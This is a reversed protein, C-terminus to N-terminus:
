LVNELWIKKDIGKVFVIEHKVVNKIFDPLQEYHLFDKHNTSWDLGHCNYLLWKMHKQVTINNQKAQDVNQKAQDVPTKKIQNTQNRNVKQHERKLIYNKEDISKLIFREIDIIEYSGDPITITHNDIYFKINTSDVNPISYYALTDPKHRLVQKRILKTAHVFDMQKAKQKCKNKRNKKIFRETSPQRKRPKQNKRRVMKIYVSSAYRVPLIIPENVDLKKKKKNEFDYEKINLLKSKAKIPIPKSEDQIRNIPYDDAIDMESEDIM